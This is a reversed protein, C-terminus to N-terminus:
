CHVERRKERYCRAKGDFVERGERVASRCPRSLWLVLLAPANWQEPAIGHPDEHGM